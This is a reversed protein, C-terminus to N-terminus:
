RKVEFAFCINTVCDKLTQSHSQNCHHKKEIYSSRWLATRQKQETLLFYLGQLFSLLVWLLKFCSHPIKM